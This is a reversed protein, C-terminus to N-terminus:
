EGTQLLTGRTRASNFSWQLVAIAIVMYLCNLGFATMMAGKDFVQQQVLARLGEFVHSSPLAHAVGQLWEPLVSVPYYVASFPVLIFTMGWAFTEAGPGARLLLANIFFGIWWGMFALNFFFLVLPFGLDFISFGYFPVALFLAPALGIVTRIVSFLMMSAWWEQPRLPSIFLHGLNRSWVEELYALSMGVQVRFLADWLLVAGLFTGLMYDLTTAQQGAFFQSIFGWLVMQVTPWYIIDIVRVWSAFLLYLHRQLMALIRHFSQTM